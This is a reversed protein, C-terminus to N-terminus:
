FLLESGARPFSQYCVKFTILGSKFLLFSFSVAEALRISCLYSVVPLWQVTFSWMVEWYFFRCLFMQEIRVVFGGFCVKYFYPRILLFYIGQMTPM